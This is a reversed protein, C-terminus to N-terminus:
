SLTLTATMTRGGEHESGTGMTITISLAVAFDEAATGEPCTVVIYPKEGGVYNVTYGNDAGPALTVDTIAGQQNSIVIPNKFYVVVTDDETVVAKGDFIASAHSAPMGSLGPTYTEGADVASATVALAFCMVVAMALAGFKRMKTM